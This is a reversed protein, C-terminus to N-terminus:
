AFAAQQLTPTAPAGGMLDYALRVGAAHGENQATTILREHEKRADNTHGTIYDYAVTLYCSRRTRADALKTLTDAGALSARHDIITQYYSIHESEKRIHDCVTTFFRTVHASM